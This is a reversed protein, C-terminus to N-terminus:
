IKGGPYSKKRIGERGSEREGWLGRGEDRRGNKGERKVSSHGTPSHKWTGIIRASGSTFLSV